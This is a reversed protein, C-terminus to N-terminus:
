GVDAVVHGLLPEARDVRREARAVVAAEAPQGVARQHAVGDGGVRHGPEAVRVDGAVPVIRREQRLQEVGALAQRDVEV